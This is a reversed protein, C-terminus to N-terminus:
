KKAREAAVNAESRAWQNLAESLSFEGGVEVIAAYAEMARRSARQHLERRELFEDMINLAKNGYHMADEINDARVVKALLLRVDYLDDDCPQPALTFYKMQLGDDAM